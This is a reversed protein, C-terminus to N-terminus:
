RDMLEENLDLGVGGVSSDGSAFAELASIPDDSEGLEAALDPVATDAGEIGSMAGASMWTGTIEREERKRRKLKTKVPRISTPEGDVQVTFVVPGIVLHDGPRLPAENVRKNNLFTGNSSGLDHIIASGSAVRVVAHKRSVEQLPIRLDCDKTRGIVMEGISVPFIRRDGSEKFMVLKVDM